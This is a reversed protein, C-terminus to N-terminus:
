GRPTTRLTATVTKGERHTAVTTTDATRDLLHMGLGGTGGTLDPPRKVPVDTSTDTVAVVLHHDQHLLDLACPGPAHRVANTVLESVVLVADQVVVPLLPPHLQQLFAETHHRATTISGHNGDLEFTAQAPPPQPNM